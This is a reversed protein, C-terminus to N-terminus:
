GQHLVVIGGGILLIGALQYWGFHEGWLYHAAIAVLVYSTAVMPFALSLPIKRIAIIYLVFAGAYIALGAITFPSAFQAFWSEGSREVGTKLMIQACVGLLISVSLSGYYPLSEM